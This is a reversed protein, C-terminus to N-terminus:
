EEGGEQGGEEERAEKILDISFDDYMQQEVRPM